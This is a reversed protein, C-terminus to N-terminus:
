LYLHIIWYFLIDDLLRMLVALWLSVDIPGDNGQFPLSIFISM